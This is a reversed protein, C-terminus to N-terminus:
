KLTSIFAGFVDDSDGNPHAAAIHAPADRVDVIRTGTSGASADIESIMDGLMELATDQLKFAGQRTQALAGCRPGYEAVFTATFEAWLVRKQGGFHKAFLALLGLPPAEPAASVVAEPLLGAAVLAALALRDQPQVTYPPQLM